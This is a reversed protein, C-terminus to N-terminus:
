LMVDKQIKCLELAHQLEHVKLFTFNNQYVIENNDFKEYNVVELSWDGSGGDWLTIKIYGDAASSYYRYCEANDEDLVKEFENKELIEVTLSIPSLIDIVFTEEFEIWLRDRRDRMGKIYYVVDDPIDHTCKIEKIQTYYNNAKDYCVLDGVMLEEAKM